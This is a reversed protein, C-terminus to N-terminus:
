KMSEMDFLNLQATESKLRKYGKKYIEVDKEFGIFNRGINHCAVGASCSDACSDLVIDGKNTYTLIMYECLDVPKQTSHIKDAQNSNNFVQVDLPYRDTSDYKTHRNEKGYCGKGDNDRIYHSSAVKRNHGHTMQPNYTPQNKYFVSIVEHSRMPQSKANLHGTPHTKQYIWDYKYMQLNSLRLHSSFPESGFLLIVGNDKIIRCYQEWLKDLPIITDWSNQTIGYPLDTFIMDISKDDLLKMGELCDMNYYGFDLM